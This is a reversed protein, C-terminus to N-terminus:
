GSVVLIRWHLVPTALIEPRRHQNHQAKIEQEVVEAQEFPQPRLDHPGDDQDRQPDPQDDPASTGSSWAGTGLSTRAQPGSGSRRGRAGRWNPGSRLLGTSGATPCTAM